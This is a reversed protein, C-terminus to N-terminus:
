SFFAVLEPVLVAPDVGHEQGALAKGTAGPIAALDEAEREVAYTPADGSNGRGRRDYRFVTFHAALLGAV